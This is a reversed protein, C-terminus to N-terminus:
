FLFQRIIEDIDYLDNTMPKEGRKTRKYDDNETEAMFIKYDLNRSLEGFVWWVNYYGFVDKIDNNFKSVEIIEDQYKELLKKSSFKGDAKVIYDKLYRIINKKIEAEKHNKISSFNEADEGDIM